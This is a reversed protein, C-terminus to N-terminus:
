EICAALTVLVDVHRQLVQGDNLRALAVLRQSTALRIRAAVEARGSHPGLHARLVDRQPNRQNFLAIETVHAAATMPHDVRVRVPVANGNEVLEAIELVVRPDDRPTATGAWAAIAAELSPEAAAAPRCVVVLPAALLGTAVTRRTNM